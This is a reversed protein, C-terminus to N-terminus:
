REVRPRDPIGARNEVEKKVTADDARLITGLSETEIFPLLGGWSWETKDSVM